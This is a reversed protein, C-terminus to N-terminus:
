SFSQWEKRLRLLTRSGVYPEQHCLFVVGFGVGEGAEVGGEGADQFVPVRGSEGDGDYVPIGDDIGFAEAVFIPLVLDRDGRVGEEGDAGACLGKGRGEDAHELVVAFEIDIFGDAVVQGFEFEIRRLHVVHDGETVHHAMAGPQGAMVQGPIKKAVAGAVGHDEFDLIHLRGGADAFFPLVVIEHEGGLTDHRFVQGTFGPFLLTVSRM